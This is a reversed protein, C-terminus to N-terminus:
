ASATAAAVCGTLLGRSAWTAFWASVDAVDADAAELRDLAGGLTAGELLAALVVAEALELSECHVTFGDRTVLADQPRGAVELDISEHATERLNWLDFIPWQSRVVAVSPQFELRASGWEDLGWGALVSMDFAPKERAHFARVIRWELAALDALFPFRTSVADSAVFAPLDVGVDNLSYTRAPAHRCYRHALDCFAAAGLLHRVAPYAEDLADFIRAPYGNVYADLRESLSGGPPAVVGLADADRAARDPELILAALRRQHEQLSRM